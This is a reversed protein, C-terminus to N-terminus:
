GNVEEHANSFGEMNEWNFRWTEFNKFNRKKRSLKQVWFDHFEDGTEAEPVVETSGRRYTLPPAESHGPDQSAMAAM